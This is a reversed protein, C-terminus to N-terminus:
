THDKKCVLLIPASFPSTSPRIIGQCLMNNCQKEIEDKLPQPYGYPRIAVLPTSPLLHICHDFPRPPRLGTPEAFVDAFEVLLLQLHNDTSLAFVQPRSTALM